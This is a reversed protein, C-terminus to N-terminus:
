REGGVEVRLGSFEVDVLLREGEGPLVRESQVGRRVLGGRPATAFAHRVREIVAGDRVVAVEVPVATVPDVLTEITDDGSRVVHRDLGKVRELPAGLRRGIASRRAARDRGDQLLGLLPDDARVAVGVDDAEGAPGGATSDPLGLRRLAGAEGAMLARVQGRSPLRVEVGRANFVRAPTGDGSDEIRSVASELDLPVERGAVRVVPQGRGVRTMTSRWGRPTREREIRYTIPNTVQRVQGNPGVRSRRISVDATLRTVAALDVATISPDVLRRQDPQSARGASAALPAVALVVAAALVLRWAKRSSDSNNANM